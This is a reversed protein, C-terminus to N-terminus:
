SQQAGGVGSAGGQAWCVMLGWSPVKGPIGTAVGQKPFTPIPLVSPRATTGRPQTGAPKEAHPLPQERLGRAPSQPSPPSFTRDDAARGRAPIAWM